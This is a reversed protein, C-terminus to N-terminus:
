RMEGAFCRAAEGSHRTSGAAAIGPRPDDTRPRSGHRAAHRWARWFTGACLTAASLGLSWHIGVISGFLGVTIGSGFRLGNASM